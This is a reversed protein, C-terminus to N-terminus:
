MMGLFAIITSHKNLSEKLEKNHRESINNTRHLEKYICFSAPKFGNLWTEKYYQFFSHLYKNDNFIIQTILMFGEEILHEPLFALAILLKAAGWGFEKQNGKLINHNAANRIIAQLLFAFYPYTVYM